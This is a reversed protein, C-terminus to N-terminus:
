LSSEITRFGSNVCLFLFLILILILVSVEPIHADLWVKLNGKRQEKELKEAEELLATRKVDAKLIAQVAPTDDAVVEQECLLVDISPPIQLVRSAIHRLLTTKGHRYSFISYSRFVTIIYLGFFFNGTLVLLAMDEARLLLFVQM